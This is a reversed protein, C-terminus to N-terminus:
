RQGCIDYDQSGLVGDWADRVEGTWDETTPTYAISGPVKGRVGAVRVREVVLPITVARQRTGAWCASAADADTAESLTVPQGVTKGDYRFAVTTFYGTWGEWPAVVTASMGWTRRSPIRFTVTGDHVTREPSKWFTPREGHKGPLGQHLQIECGECDEVAFTLATRGSRDHHGVAKAPTGTAVVAGVGVSLAATALALTRFTSVSSM